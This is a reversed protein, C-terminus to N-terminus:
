AENIVVKATNIDLKEPLIVQTFKGDSICKQIEFMRYETFYKGNAEKNKDFIFIYNKDDRV